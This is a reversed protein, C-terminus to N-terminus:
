THLVRIRLNLSIVIRGDMLVINNNVKLRDKVGLFSKISEPLDNRMSCFGNKITTILTIHSQDHKISKQIDDFTIAINDISYAIAIEDTIDSNHSSNTLVNLTAQIPNRSVADSGRHWKGPCHNVTFQYQFTKETLTCLYSNHLSSPDRKNLIGLLPKHDTVITLNKCGLFIIKCYRIGMSSGFAWKRHPLIPDQCTTYISIRCFSIELRGPLM